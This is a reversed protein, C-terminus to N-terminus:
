IRNTKRYIKERYETLIKEATVQGQTAQETDKALRTSARKSGNMVRSNTTVMSISFVSILISWLSIPLGLVLFITACPATNQFIFRKFSEIDPPIQVYCPDAIWGLQILGHYTAIALTGATTLRLSILVFHKREFFTGFLALISTLFFGIRQLNCLRCGQVNYTWEFVYSNLIALFSIISL